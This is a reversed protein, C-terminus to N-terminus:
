NTAATDMVDGSMSHQTHQTHQTQTTHLRKFNM